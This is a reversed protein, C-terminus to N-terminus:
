SSHRLSHSHSPQEGNCVGPTQTLIAVTRFSGYAINQAVTDVEAGSYRGEGDPRQNGPVWLELYGNKFKVNKSEAKWNLGTPWDAIRLGSPLGNNFTYSAQNYFPIGSVVWGGDQKPPVPSKTLASALEATAMLALVSKILSM